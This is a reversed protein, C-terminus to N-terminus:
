DANFFAPETFVRKLREREDLKISYLSFFDEEVFVPFPTLANRGECLM